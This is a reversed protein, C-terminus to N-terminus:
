RILQEINYKRVFDQMLFWTEDAVFRVCHYFSLFAVSSVFCFNSLFKWIWAVWSFPNYDDIISRRERPFSQFRSFEFEFRPQYIFMWIPHQSYELNGLKGKCFRAHRWKDARFGSCEDEMWRLSDKEREENEGERRRERERRNVRRCTHLWWQGFRKLAFRYCIKKEGSVDFYWVSQIGSVYANIDLM